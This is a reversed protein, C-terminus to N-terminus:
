RGSNANKFPSARTTFSACKSSCRQSARNVRVQMGILVPQSTQQCLTHTGLLLVKVERAMRREDEKLQKEIDRSRKVEPHEDKTSQNGKGFCMIKSFAM